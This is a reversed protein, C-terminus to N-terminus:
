RLYDPLRERLWVLARGHQRKVAVVSTGTASAIEDWSLGHRWRLAVVTRQGEPMSAIVDWLRARTDQTVAEADAPASEGKGRWPEDSGPAVEYRREESRRARFADIARRRTVGYLAAALSVTPAWTTRHTWIWGFVDSVIEEAVAASRVYGAALACLGTYHRRFVTEFASADGARIQGLLVVDDAPLSVTVDEASDRVGTDRRRPRLGRPLWRAEDPSDGFWFPAISATMRAGVDSATAELVYWSYQPLNM